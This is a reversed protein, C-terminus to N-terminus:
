LPQPQLLQGATKDAFESQVESLAVRPKFCMECCLAAADNYFTCSDCNWTANAVNAAAM